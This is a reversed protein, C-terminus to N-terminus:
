PTTAKFGTADNREAVEFSTEWCVPPGAADIKLQVRVPPIFGLPPLSLDAGKGKVLMEAEGNSAAKLKLVSVGYPSAARDKYRYTAVGLTRWCGLGQCTVGPVVAAAVLPQAASSADYLCVQVSAEDAAAPSFDDPTASGGRGLKWKLLRKAAKTPRRVLLTARQSASM